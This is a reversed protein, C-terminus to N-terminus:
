TGTCLLFVHAVPCAANTPFHLNANIPSFFLFLLNQTSSSPRQFMYSIQYSEPASVLLHGSMRSTSNKIYVQTKCICLSRETFTRYKDTLTAALLM